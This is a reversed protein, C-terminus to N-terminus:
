FCNTELILYSPTDLDSRKKKTIYSRFWMVDWNYDKNISRFSYKQSTKSATRYPNSFLGARLVAFFYLRFCYILTVVWKLHEHTANFTINATRFKTACWAVSVVIFRYPHFANSMPRRWINQGWFLAPLDSRQPSSPSRTFSVKWCERPQLRPIYLHEFGGLKRKHLMVQWFQFWLTNM